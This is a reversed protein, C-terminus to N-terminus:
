LDTEDLSDDIVFQVEQRTIDQSIGVLEIAAVKMASKKLRDQGGRVDRLSVSGDIIHARYVDYKGDENRGIVVGVFDVIDPEEGEDRM